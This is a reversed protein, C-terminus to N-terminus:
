NKISASVTVAEHLPQANGPVNLKATGAENQKM